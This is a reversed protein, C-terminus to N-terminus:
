KKLSAWYAALDQLDQDTRDETYLHMINDTTKTKGKYFARLQKLLYSEKLGAIPPTEFNGKGDMGHCDICDFTLDGGRNISGKAQVNAAVFMLMLLGITTTLISKRTLM